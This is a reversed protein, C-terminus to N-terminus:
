GGNGFPGYALEAVPVHGGHAQRPGVFGGIFEDDIVEGRSEIGGWRHSFFMAPRDDAAIGIATSLEERAMAIGLADAAVFDAVLPAVGSRVEGLDGLLVITLIQQLCQDLGVRLDRLPEAADHQRHGVARQQGADQLFLRLLLQRDDRGVALRDGDRGVVDFVARRRLRWHRRHVGDQLAAFDAVEDLEQRCEFLLCDVLM